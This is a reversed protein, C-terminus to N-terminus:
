RIILNTEMYHFELSTKSNIVYIKCIQKIFKNKIKPSEIINEIALVTVHDSHLSSNKKEKITHVVLKYKV